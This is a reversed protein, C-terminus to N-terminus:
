GNEETGNETQTKSECLSSLLNKKMKGLLLMLTEREDDNLGSLATADTKKIKEIAAADVSRGLETLSILTQRKDSPNKLIDVLGEDQMKKIIVSVTPPRLHTLAVIERQTIADSTALLSLVHHAGVQSMVGDFNAERMKARSLRVIEHCLKVPNDTLEKREPLSPPIRKRKM